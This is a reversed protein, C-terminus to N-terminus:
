RSIIAGSRDVEDFALRQDLPVFLEGGDAHEGRTDRVFDAIREGILARRSPPTIRTKFLRTRM